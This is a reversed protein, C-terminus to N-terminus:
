LLCMGDIILHSWMRRTAAILGMVLLTIAGWQIVSTTSSSAEIGVLSGQFKGDNISTIRSVTQMSSWHALDKNMGGISHRYPTGMM